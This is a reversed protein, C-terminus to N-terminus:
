HEGDGRVRHENGAASGTVLDHGLGGACDAPHEPDVIRAGVVFRRASAGLGDHDTGDGQGAGPGRGISRRGPPVRGRGCRHVRRLRHRVRPGGVGSGLLADREVRLAVRRDVHRRSAHDAPDSTAPVTATPVTSTAATQKSGDDDRTVLYVVVVIAVVAVFAGIGILLGRRHPASPPTDDDPVIETMTRAEQTSRVLIPSALVASWPRLVERCRGGSPARQETCSGAAVM